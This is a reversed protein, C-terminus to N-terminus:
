WYQRVKLAPRVDIKECRVKRVRNAVVEGPEGIGSKYGPLEGNTYCHSCITFVRVRVGVM